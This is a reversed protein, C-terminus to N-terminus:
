NSFEHFIRVKSFKSKRACCPDQKIPSFLWSSFSLSIYDDVNWSWDIKPIWNCLSLANDANGLILILYVWIFEQSSTLVCVYVDLSIYILFAAPEISIHMHMGICQLRRPHQTFMHTCWLRCRGKTQMVEFPMPNGRFVICVDFNVVFFHRNFDSQFKFIFFLSIFYTKCRTFKVAISPTLPLLCM